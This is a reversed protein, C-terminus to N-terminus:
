IVGSRNANALVIQTILFDRVTVFVTQSIEVEGDASLEGLIKVAEGVTDSKEFKAVKEPTM